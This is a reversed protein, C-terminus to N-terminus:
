GQSSLTALAGPPIRITPTPGVVDVTPQPIAPYAYAACWATWNKIGVRVTDQGQPSAKLQYTGEIEYLPVPWEALQSASGSQTAQKLCTNRGAPLSLLLEKMFPELGYYTVPVLHAGMIGGTEKTVTRQLISVLLRDYSVLMDNVAPACRPDLELALSLCSVGQDMRGLFKAHDQFSLPKKSSEAKELDLRNSEALWAAQVLFGCASNARISNSDLGKPLGADKEDDGVNSIGSDEFSSPRLPSSALYPRALLKGCHPCFYSAVSVPTTCDPCQGDSAVAGLRGNAMDVPLGCSHCTMRGSDPTTGWETSCLPCRVQVMQTAADSSFRLLHACTPCIYSTTERPLELGRGCFPCATKRVWVLEKVVMYGGMLAFCGFMLMFISTFVVVDYAPDTFTESIGGPPPGKLLTQLFTGPGMVVVVLGGVLFVVGAFATLGVALKLRASRSAPTKREQQQLLSARDRSALSPTASSTPSPSAQVPTPDASNGM